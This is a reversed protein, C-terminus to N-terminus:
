SKNLSPPRLEAVRKMLLATVEELLKRNIPRDYYASLDVAPGFTVRARSPCAWTRRINSTQPGGTIRAPIVPARSRLALLAVGPKGRGPKGRGANSLGGEPYICLIRGESLRAYMPSHRLSGPWQAPGACLSHAFFPGFLPISYYERAIVFSIPRRSHLTVAAPRRQQATPGPM